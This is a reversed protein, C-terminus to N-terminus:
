CYKLVKSLLSYRTWEMPLFMTCSPLPITKTQEWQNETCPRQYTSFLHTGQPSPHSFTRRRVSSSTFALTITSVQTPTARHPGLSLRMDGYHFQALEHSPSAIDLHGARKLVCIGFEKAPPPLAKKLDLGTILNLCFTPSPPALENILM